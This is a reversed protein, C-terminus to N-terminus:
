KNNPYENIWHFCTNALRFSSLPKNHMYLKTTDGPKASLLAMQGNAKTYRYTTGVSDEDTLLRITHKITDISCIYRKGEGNTTQIYATNNMDIALYHWVKDSTILPALTDRNHIHSDVEYLGYLPPKKFFENYANITGLQGWGLLILVLGKIIGRARRQRRTNYIAIAPPPELKKHSIFFSWLRPIYPTCIFITALLLHSSFLKVPIDYCFNLAVINCLVTMTFLCGFMTTRRFLLLLGGVVELSGTFVNYARSYGMFTWALNMPSADGYPKILTRFAPFPFQSYMIKSFGYSLMYYAICYRMLAIVWYFLTNYSKRGSDAIWWILSGAFAIVLMCLLQIYNYTTDGSGNPYVTIEKWIHLRQGAWLVIPDWASDFFPTYFYIFYYLAFFRLLQKQLVSWPLPIDSTM